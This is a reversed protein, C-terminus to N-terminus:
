NKPQIICRAGGVTSQVLGEPLREGYDAGIGESFAANILRNKLASEYFMLRHLTTLLESEEMDPRVIRTGGYCYDFAAHKESSIWVDALDHAIKITLHNMADELTSREMMSADSGRFVM